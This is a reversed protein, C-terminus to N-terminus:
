DQCAGLQQLPAPASTEQLYYIHQFQTYLGTTLPKLSWPLLRGAATQVGNPVLGLRALTTNNMHWSIPRNKYRIGKANTCKRQAKQNFGQVRFSSCNSPWESWSTTLWSSEAHLHFSPSTLKNYQIPWACEGPWLFKPEVRQWHLNPSLSLIVDM